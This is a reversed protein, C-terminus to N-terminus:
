ARKRDLEFAARLRNQRRHNRRRREVAGDAQGEGQFRPTGYSLGETVEPLALILERFKEYSIGKVSKTKMKSIPM